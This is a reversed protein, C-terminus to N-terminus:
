NIVVNDLNEQPEPYKMAMGELTEVIVTSIVLNRLWKRNSPVIYWPAHESSTKNLVDEYAAMYDPWLSRARLDGVNFKWHKTPDDLRAQLRAKQEDMDIHLYFKLITTGEDALLKEFANIHEYRRSWREPPALENVRVVLVDEYHSRNFIVIEGLGPTQHHIRWLYDHGLEVPTPVKFGAVRIGQPNVGTFVHRIAGDKGATDMGQLVILLKHKQEAWLVEQLAELRDTLENLAKKAESKGGPFATEDNPDWNILKIDDGPKARYHDMSTTIM